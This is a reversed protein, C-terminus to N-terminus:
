EIDIGFMDSMDKDDIVRKSKTKSKEIMKGSKKEITDSILNEVNINRLKFFLLPDEDLKAGVGYLVAIIHKCMEAYDLCNCHFHIESEKPFLGSDDSVFLEKLKKPFKGEILKELSSLRGEIKTVMGKIEEKNMADIDIQVDYMKRGSGIVLANIVGENITLDVVAGNKLYSRGRSLRNSYDAYIELNKNWAKGWWTKAIARGSINIPALNPNKKLLKVLKKRNKEKMEAVSVYKPYRGM